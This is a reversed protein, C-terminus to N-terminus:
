ANTANSREEQRRSRAPEERRTSHINEETVGIRRDKASPAARGGKGETKGNESRTVNLVVMGSGMEIEESERDTM